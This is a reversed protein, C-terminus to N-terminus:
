SSLRCGVVSDDDDNDLRRLRGGDYLITGGSRYYHSTANTKTYLVEFWVGVAAVDQAPSLTRCLWFRPINGTGDDDDAEHDGCDSCLDYTALLKDGAAIPRSFYVKIGDPDHWSSCPRPSFTKTSLSSPRWLTNLRPAAPPPPRRITGISGISWTKATGTSRALDPAVDGQGRRDV